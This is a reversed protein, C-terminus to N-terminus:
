NIPLKKKFFLKSLEVIFLKKRVTTTDFCIATSKRGRAKGEDHENTHLLQM